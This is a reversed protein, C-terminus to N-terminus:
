DACHILTLNYGSHVKCSTHYEDDLIPLTTKYDFTSEVQEQGQVTLALALVLLRARLVRGNPIGKM